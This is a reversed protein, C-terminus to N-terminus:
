ALILNSGRLAAELFGAFLPHPENPKSQFEPHFQVALFFPHDKIEIIEA